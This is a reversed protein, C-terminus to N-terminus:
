HRGVRQHTQTSIKYKIETYVIYEHKDTHVADNGLGTGTLMNSYLLDLVLLM